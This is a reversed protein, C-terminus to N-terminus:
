KKAAAVTQPTIGYKKLVTQQFDPHAQGYAVLQQVFSQILPRNQNFGQIIQTVQPKNAAIDRRTLSSQRYLFVTLTGSIIILALLLTLTQRRLAAIQESLETNTPSENM